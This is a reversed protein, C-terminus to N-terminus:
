YLDSEISFTFNILMKWGIHGRGGEEEVAKVLDGCGERPPGGGAGQDSETGDPQFTVAQVGPGVQVEEGDDLGAAFGLIERVEGPQGVNRRDGIGELVGDVAKFDEVRVADEALKGDKVFVFQCGRGEGGPPDDPFRLANRVRDGDGLACGWRLFRGGGLPQQAFRQGVEVDAEATLPATFMEGGQTQDLPVGDVADEFQRFPNLGDFGRGRVGEVPVAPDFLANWGQRFYQRVHDLTVLAVAFGGQGRQVPQLPM